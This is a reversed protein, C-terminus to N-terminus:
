LAPAHGSFQALASARVPIPAVGQFDKPRRERGRHGGAFDGSEALAVALSDLLSPEPYRRVWPALLRVAAPGDRFTPAPCTALFWVRGHAAYLPEPALRGAEEFLQRAAAHRGDKKRQGVLCQISIRKRWNPEFRLLDAREEAQVPAAVLSEALLSVQGGAPLAFGRRALVQDVTRFFRM